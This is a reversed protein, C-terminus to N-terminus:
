ASKKFISYQEQMIDFFDELTYCAPKRNSVGYINGDVYFYAIAKNPNKIWHKNEKLEFGDVIMNIGDLEFHWVNEKDKGIHFEYM